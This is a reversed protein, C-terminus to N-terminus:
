TDLICIRLRNEVPVFYTMNFNIDCIYSLRIVKSYSGQANSIHENQKTESWNLSPMNVPIPIISGMITSAITAMYKTIFRRYPYTYNIMM